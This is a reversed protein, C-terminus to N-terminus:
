HWSRRARAPSVRGGGDGGRADAARRHVGRGARAGPHACRRREAHRHRLRARAPAGRGAGPLVRTMFGDRVSTAAAAARGTIPLLLAIHAGARRRPALAAARGPARRARAAARAKLERYRAALAPRTRSPSPARARRAGGRAPRARARAAVNLLARETLQQPAVATGDAAALARAADETRQADLYDRAAHLLFENRDTGSNHAALEEYVRAAGARDGAQELQQPVIWRPRRGPASADPESLRELASAHAARLCLAPPRRLM